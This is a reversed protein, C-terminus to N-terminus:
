MNQTHIRHLPNDLTAPNESMAELGTGDAGDRIQRILPWGSLLGILVM